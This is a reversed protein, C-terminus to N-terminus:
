FRFDFEDRHGMTATRGHPQREEISLSSSRVEQPAQSASRMGGTGIKSAVPPAERFRRHAKTNSDDDVLVVMWVGIQGSSGYLPTCHIWRTRGEDEHKSTWKVKATVGRGEAFASTLEDRVRDSSGIRNMFPSQLMGPVRLAPSAFLIRLSPYPRVLLYNQYVGVLKGHVRSPGARPQEQASATAKINEDSSDNLLLRPRHWNQGSTDDEEDVHQRHMAGGNKRVIELEAQNFMETLSQFEDKEEKKYNPDNKHAIMKKASELDTCEKVLNSVDVQAGIFYRLNGRSDRLPATMLLNMFPSGDRRYNVFTECVDKGARVAERLRRVSDRNTRPGQLFRCNRGIVYSVGYQTTRHFEESSFVIPNDQRSPDTLCFVEALGESQARLDPTLTGMIRRKISSSVVGM